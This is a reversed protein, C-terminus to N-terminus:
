SRSAIRGRGYRARRGQARSVRFRVTGGAPVDFMTGFNFQPTRLRLRAANIRFGVVGRKAVRNIVVVLNNFETGSNRRVDIITVLNERPDGAHAQPRVVGECSSPTARSRRRSWPPFTPRHSGFRSATWRSKRLM